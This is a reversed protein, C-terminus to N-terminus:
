LSHTTHALCGRRVIPRELMVSGVSPECLLSLLLRDGKTVLQEFHSATCPTLNLVGVKPELLETVSDKM